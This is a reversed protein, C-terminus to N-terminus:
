DTRWLRGEKVAKETEEYEERTEFKIDKEIDFDFEGALVHQKFVEFSGYPYDFNFKEVGESEITKVADRETDIDYGLRLLSRIIIGAQIEEKSLICNPIPISPIKM